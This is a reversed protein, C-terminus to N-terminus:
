ESEEGLVASGNSEEDTSSEGEPADVALDFGVNGLTHAERQLDALTLPRHALLGAPFRLLLGVQRAELQVDTSPNGWGDRDEEDRGIGRSRNFLVALRLLVALRRATDRELHSLDDLFETPLRKRHARVLVALIEREDNGFGDLDCHQLLYQGHKHYGVHSITLGIEHLRAAWALLRRYRVDTLGWGEAVQKLFRLATTEVRLAHAEDLGFRRAISRVTRDRVDEFHFRGHLDYLLGERLAGNAVIMQDIKLSEFVALLVAAGGAIVERREPKLGPLELADVHKAAIIAKRLQKLGARDIANSTWGNQLLIRQVANITGSSGACTEWAPPRFAQQLPQLKLQAEITAKDFAKRSFGKAFFRQSFSVCGMELSASEVLESGSGLMCETSGGGIDIVLRRGARPHTSHVVGLYILRAEETGSIVSIPHGLAQEARVLFSRVNRARRFTNTGVARVNGTPIERLQEGFRALCALAREQADESLTLGKGLGAALQVRERQADLIQVEGALMRAVLMHFSNSGLDVAAALEGVEPQAPVAGAESWRVM